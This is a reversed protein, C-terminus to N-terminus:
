SFINKIEDYSMQRYAPKKVVEVNTELFKVEFFEEDYFSLKSNTDPNCEIYVIENISLKKKECIQKALSYGSYSVSTGPNEQYLETVIVYIVNDKEIIKLGCNSPVGWQGEFDFVEDYYKEPVKM